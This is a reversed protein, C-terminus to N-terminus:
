NDKKMVSLVVIMALLGVFGKDGLTEMLVLVNAIVSVDGLFQGFLLEAFIALGFLSGLVATIGTVWGKITNLIEM